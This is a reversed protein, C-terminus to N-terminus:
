IGLVQKIKSIYRRSVFATDGNSMAVRITGAYSLDFNKVRRLNVIESHSIRVFSGKDMRAELEYLRLRLAFEGVDTVAFVKGGSAYIRLIEQQELLAVQDGSFGALVQPREQSIRKMLEQIEEDVADTVIIVRREPANEELRIEIKM